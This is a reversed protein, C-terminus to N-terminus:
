DSDAGLHRLAAEDNPDLRYVERLMRDAGEADGTANYVEALHRYAWKEEPNLEIAKLLLTEAVEGRRDSEWELRGLDVHAWYNNPQLSIVKSLDERAENQRGLERLIQSREYLTRAQSLQDAFQDAQVAQDYLFLVQGIQANDSRRTMRAAGSFYESLLRADPEATEIAQRYLTEATAWSDLLEHMRAENYSHLSDAPNLGRALAYYKAAEQWVRRREAQRGWLALERDFDEIERWASVAQDTEGQALQSFGFGRWGRDIASPAQNVSALFINSASVASRKDQNALAQNLAVYGQNLLTLGSWERGRALVSGLVLTVLTILLLKHM